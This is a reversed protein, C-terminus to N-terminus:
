KVSKIDLPASWVKPPPMGELLRDAALISGPLTYLLSPLELKDVLVKATKSHLEDDSILSFTDKSIGDSCSGFYYGCCSPRAQYISCLGNELFICNRAYGNSSLMSIIKDEAILQEKLDDNWRQYHRLYNFAVIGDIADVLVRQHKCCDTCGPHCVANREQVAQAYLKAFHRERATVVNDIFILIQSEVTHNDVIAAAMHGCQKDCDMFVPIGMENLRKFFFVDEGLYMPGQEGEAMSNQFWWLDGYKQAMREIVDCKLLLCGAGLGGVRHLGTRPITVRFKFPDYDYAIPKLNRGYYASGVVDKNHSLLTMITGQQVMMDDDIFWLHTVKGEKYLKFATECIQNRATTIYMDAQGDFHALIGNNACDIVCGILSLTSSAPVYKYTPVGILVKPKDEM